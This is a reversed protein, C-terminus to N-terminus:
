CARERYWAITRALGEDLSIRAEFGLRAKAGAVDAARVQEDPRDPVAGFRPEVRPAIERVLREVIERTSTMVGTALDIDQGEIGPRACALLFGDVVDDVYIWDGVWRGSALKPSTGRLLSLIVHPVLKDVHQNPGYAMFPRLIVAPVGYLKHFMRAYANGAWKAVAYPSSAVGDGAAALPETLSGTVVLRRCGVEAAASLLNVTSGLLSQFAPLVLEASPAASVQGALHFVFDPRLERLLARAEGEHALDGRHWRLRAEGGERASRSTAHVEAGEALLRRVLHSGLFGSAGTVLATAGKM